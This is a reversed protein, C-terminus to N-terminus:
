SRCLHETREPTGVSRCDDRASSSKQLLLAATRRRWRGWHPPVIDIATSTISRRRDLHHRRRLATRRRRLRRASQTTTHPASRVKLLHLHRAIRLAFPSAAPHTSRCRTACRTTAPEAPPTTSMFLRVSQIFRSTSRETDYEAQTSTNFYYVSGSELQHNQGNRKRRGSNICSARVHISLMLLTHSKNKKEKKTVICFIRWFFLDRFTRSM